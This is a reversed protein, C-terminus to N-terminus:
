PYVYNICLYVSSDQYTKELHILHLRSIYLYSLTLNFKMGGPCPKM